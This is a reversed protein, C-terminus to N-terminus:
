DGRELDLTDLPGSWATPHRGEGTDGLDDAELEGYPGSWDKPPSRPVLVLEDWVDRDLSEISGDFYQIEVWGEDDDIAIIEFSNGDEAKYWDGIQPEFPDAM